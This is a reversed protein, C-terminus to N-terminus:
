VTVNSAFLPLTDGAFLLTVYSEVYPSKGVGVRVPYVNLPHYVADLPPVATEPDVFTDIVEACVRYACHSAFVYVTVNLAFPPLTDVALLLTVYSEVYPVNGVGVRVPHVNLPQYVADLPPVFTSDVVLTM